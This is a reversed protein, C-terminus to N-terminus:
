AGRSDGSNEGKEVGKKRADQAGGWDGELSGNWSVRAGEKHGYLDGMKTLMEGEKRTNSVGGRGGRTAKEADSFTRKKAWENGRKRRM